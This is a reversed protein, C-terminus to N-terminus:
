RVIVTARNVRSFFRSEVVTKFNFNFYMEFLVKHSIGMPSGGLSQERVYM